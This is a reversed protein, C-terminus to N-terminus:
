TQQQGSNSMIKGKTFDPHLLVTGQLECSRSIYKVQKADEEHHSIKVM